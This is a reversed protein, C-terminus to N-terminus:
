GSNLYGKHLIGSYYILLYTKNWRMNIVLSSESSTLSYNRTLIPILVRTSVVKRTGVITAKLMIHLSKLPLIISAFNGLRLGCQKRPWKECSFRKVEQLLNKPLNKKRGSSSAPAAKGGKRKNDKCRLFEMSGVFLLMIQSSCTKKPWM